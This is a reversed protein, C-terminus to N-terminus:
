SVRIHQHAHTEGRAHRGTEIDAPTMVLKGHRVGREAIVHEGFRRRDNSM